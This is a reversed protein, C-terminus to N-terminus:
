PTLFRSFAIQPVARWVASLTSKSGAERQSNQAMSKPAVRQTIAWGTHTCRAIAPDESSRPKPQRKHRTVVTRLRGRRPIVLCPTRQLGGALSITKWLRHESDRCLRRAHMPDDPFGDVLKDQDAMSQPAVDRRTDTTRVARLCPMDQGRPASRSHRRYIGTRAIWPM